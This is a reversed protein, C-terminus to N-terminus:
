QHVMIIDETNYGREKANEILSAIIEESLQPKRSLIWLYRPSSGGVLVYEYNEDIYGGLILYRLLGFLPNNIVDYFEKNTGLLNIDTNANGSDKLNNLGVLNFIKDVDSPKTKLLSFFRINDIADLRMQVDALEIRLGHTDYATTLNKEREIYERAYVNSFDPYDPNIKYLYEFITRLEELSRAVNQEKEEINKKIENVRKTLTEKMTETYNHVSKFLAYVYGKNQQLLSFDRPFANKYVILAFLKTLSLDLTKLVLSYVFFENCINEVLRMDTIHLSVGRLCTDDVSSAIDFKTLGEIFKDYSNSGNVIPVVPIITDFFKVRDVTSFIDDKVLYLFRVPKKRDPYKPGNLLSNIEKLREFVAVDDFRDIDEFVIVDAKTRDFLYLVEDLYKDFFPLDREQSFEIENGAFKMKSLPRHIKWQKVALFLLFFGSVFSTAAVFFFLISILASEEAISNIIEAKSFLLNLLDNNVLLFTSVLFVFLLVTLFLVNKPKIIHKLKFSSQPIDEPNIQHLLQNVIKQEIVTENYNEEDAACQSEYRSLSIHFFNLKDGKEKEYSLLISSKGAGYPGSLAINTRKSDDSFVQDLLFRYEDNLADSSPGLNYLEPIKQNEEAHGPMLM